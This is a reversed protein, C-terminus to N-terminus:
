HARLLGAVARTIAEAAYPKQLVPADRFEEPVRAVGYASAFVFPVGRERLRHAVPYVLEGGLNIDLIAVDFGDHALREADQLRGVPVVDYGADELLDALVLALCMEDEVMLLRPRAGNRSPPAREITM